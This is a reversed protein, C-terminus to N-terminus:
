IATTVISNSTIAKYFLIQQYFLLLAKPPIQTQQIQTKSIDKIPM